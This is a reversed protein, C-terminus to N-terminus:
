GGLYSKKVDENNALFDSSGELTIEGTELVYGRHAAKLAMNCNQEVLLVPMGDRNIDKIIEFIEAVVIPALGLSPEDMMLMKPRSMLARAIALMQQEGGSLTGGEQNRREKLRPFRRFMKEFDERVGAADSRHYAGIQLNEEVTLQPFIHRGELCQCLGMAAIKNGGTRQIPKGMFLVEGSVTVNDLLGSITRLTTTKGAGNAGILTVVEGEDVHFSVGKLAHIPGYSCHLDKVELIAPM